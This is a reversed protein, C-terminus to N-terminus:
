DELTIVELEQAIKDVDSTGIPGEKTPPAGGAKRERYEKGLLEMLGGLALGPNDGKVRQFNAKIFLQYDSVKGAARVAPKTQMLKSKCSGCAHKSPDISKSHRKYEHGCSVCEWVYKYSIDYSHKTTVNINRHRFAKSVKAARPNM